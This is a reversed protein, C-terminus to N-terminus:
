SRKNEAYTIGAFFGKVWAKRTEIPFKTHFAHQLQEKGDIIISVYTWEGENDAKLELDVPFGNEKLFRISM